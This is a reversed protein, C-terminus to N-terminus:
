PRFYRVALRLQPLTQFQSRYRTQVYLEVIRQIPVALDPRAASIRAAFTLPGEHPLRHLGHLALKKCFRLYIKQAPDVREHRLFMWVAYGLLFSAIIGVLLMTMGFWNIHGLGLRKLLAQQRMASYGIIEQNWNNNIADWAYRLQRWIKVLPSAQNLALPNFESPLASEIGQEVREPAVYGTPDVRVWGKKPLWVESWAHADRQRVILYDGIPNVDGGLYGTVIRAPIGAARMLVTFAAAYHECFGNRTEFLFEDVPDDQLLDPTYTYAFPEQNFHQLARQVIAEPQSNEQQWQAALARARPHFREPLQLALRKQQYTLIDARYDIYSRLQYRMRQRVPFNSLIQYNPSMYAQPPAKIPLDLAFLWRKNHAELTVTYDFAQGSPHINVQSINRHTSAKWNRGDSRWLVPGRWYRQAQPAIEGDFKVRFAVENSLSLESIDGLLMSDGLGSVGGHADIPWKWFPGVVRPFLVFLVLMVPLAQMLLTSSLRLRQRTSLSNENLSILTATAVLMVIGMYLALPISQSYLFNTIILFYSLFCLLLADRRSNMELLKIGCLVVLLAVYANRGFRVGYSFSLGVFVLLAIALLVWHSPLPKQYRTILYRWLLLAVFIPPIWRVMHSVHPLVVLVLTAMLWLLADLRPFLPHAAM